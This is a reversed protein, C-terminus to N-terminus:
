PQGYLYCLSSRTRGECFIMAKQLGKQLHQYLIDYPSYEGQSFDREIREYFAKLEDLEMSRIYYESM